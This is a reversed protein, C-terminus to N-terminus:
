IGLYQKLIRLVVTKHINLSEAIMRSPIRCDNKVLDAVAAINGENPTSKPVAVERTMEWWSGETESDLIDGLFTQDTWRRKGM